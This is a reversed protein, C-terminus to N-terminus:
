RSVVKPSGDDMISVLFTFFVGGFNMRIRKIFIIFRGVIGLGLSFILGGLGFRLKRPNLKAV